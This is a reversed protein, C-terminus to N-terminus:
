FLGGQMNGNAYRQQGIVMRDVSLFIWRGLCTRSGGRGSAELFCDGGCMERSRIVVM